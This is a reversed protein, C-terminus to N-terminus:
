GGSWGLALVIRSFRFATVLEMLGPLLCTVALFRSAAITLGNLLLIPNVICGLIVLLTKWPASVYM